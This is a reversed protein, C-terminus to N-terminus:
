NIFYMKVNMGDIGLPKTDEKKILIETRKTEAEHVEAHFIVEVIYVIKVRTKKSFSAYELDKLTTSIKYLAIEVVM